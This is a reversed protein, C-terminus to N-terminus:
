MGRDKKEKASERDPVRKKKKKGEQGDEWHHQVVGLPHSFPAQDLLVPLSALLLFHEFGELVTWLGRPGLPLQDAQHRLGMSVGVSLACLPLLLAFEQYSHATVWSLCLFCKLAEVGLSTHNKRLHNLDTLQLLLILFCQLSTQCSFFRAFLRQSLSYVLQLYTTFSDPLNSYVVKDPPSVSLSRTRPTM